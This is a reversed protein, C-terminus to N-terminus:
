EGFKEVMRRVTNLTRTTHEPGGLAAELERVTITADRVGGRRRRLVERGLVDFGDQDTALAALAERAEGTAPSRLFVM